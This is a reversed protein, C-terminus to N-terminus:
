NSNIHIQLLSYLRLYWSVSTLNMEMDTRVMKNSRGCPLSWIERAKDTETATAKM